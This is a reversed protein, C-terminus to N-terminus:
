VSADALSLDLVVKNRHRIGIQLRTAVRNAGLVEGLTGARRAAEGLGGATFAGPPVRLPDGRCRPPSDAPGPANFPDGTAWGKLRGAGAPRVAPREEEKRERVEVETAV